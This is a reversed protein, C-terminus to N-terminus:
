GLHSWSRCEAAVYKLGHWSRHKQRVAVFVRVDDCLAILCDPVITKKTKRSSQHNATGVFFHKVQLARQKETEM